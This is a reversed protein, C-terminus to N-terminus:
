WREAGTKPTGIRQVIAPISGPTHKLALGRWAAHGTSTSVRQYGRDRLQNGFSTPNCLRENNAAAWQNYTALLEAATAQANESITCHAAIFGQFWDTDDRYSQTATAIEAPTHLGDRQYRAAGELMWRTIGPLEALLREKMDTRVEHQPIRQEFPIPRVRDWFAEGGGRVTPRHNTSLWITHSPAFTFPAEYLRRATIRDGGTILKVTAENIRGQEPTEQSTVLRARYLTALDPTAGQTDRTILFLSAPVTTSYPGAVAQLTEIFTSKGNRGQGYLMILLRESTTGIMSYGALTQVYQRIAASPLVRELFANWTPCTATTTETYTAPRHPWALVRTILNARNPPTAYQPSAPQHRLDLTADQFSLHYPDQDLEDPTITIGPQSKALEVAALIRQLQQSRESHRVLATRESALLNPSVAVSATNTMEVAVDQAHRRLQHDGADAAWHSGTWVLWSKWSQVYRIAAGHAETLRQANGLDTLPITTAPAPRPTAQALQELSALTGGHAIYDSVDAGRGELPLRVITTAIGATSLATAIQQASAEGATDNDPIIRVNKGKLHETYSARWKGAGMPATTAVAGLRILANADKEGEVIWVPQTTALVAPLNYLVTQVGRLSWVYTGDPQPVRQRFTKPNYRLTEHAVTGDPNHYTYTAVLRPAPTAPKPTAPSAVSPRPWIRLDQLAQKVASQSCGAHCHWLPMGTLSIESLSLSPNTDDHAPCRAVWGTSTQKGGLAHAIDAATPQQLTM